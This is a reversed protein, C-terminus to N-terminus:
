FVYSIQDYYVCRFKSFKIKRMFQCRNNLSLCAYVIVMGMCLAFEFAIYVFKCYIMYVNLDLM